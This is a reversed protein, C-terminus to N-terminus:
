ESGGHQRCGHTLEEVRDRREHRRASWGLWVLDDPDPCSCGFRGYGNGRQQRKDEEPQDLVRAQLAVDEGEGREITPGSSPAIGAIRTAAVTDGCSARM